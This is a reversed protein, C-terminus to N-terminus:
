LINQIKLFIKLSKCLKNITKKLCPGVWLNPQWDKFAPDGWTTPMGQINFSEKITMPLGLLPTNVGSQRLADCQKPQALASDFDRVVVANINTDQSDIHEITKQTLELSSITKDNLLALQELASKKSTGLQKRKEHWIFLKNYTLTYCYAMVPHFEIYFIFLTDRTVPSCISMIVALHKVAGNKLMFLLFITKLRATLSIEM